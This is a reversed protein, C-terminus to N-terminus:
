PEPRRGWRAWHDGWYEPHESQSARVRERFEEMGLQGEPMRAEPLPHDRVLAALAALKRRYEEELLAFAPHKAAAALARGRKGSFRQVRGELASANDGNEEILGPLAAEVAEMERRLERLPEALGERSALVDMESLAEPIDTELQRRLGATELRMSELRRRYAGAPDLMEEPDLDLCYFSWLKRRNWFAEPDRALSAAEETYDTPRDPALQAAVLLGTTRALQEDLLSDSFPGAIGPSLREIAARSALHRLEHAMNCAVAEVALERDALSLFKRNFSYVALDLNAEGRHGVIGEVGKRRIIRSDSYDDARILLTTGSRRYEDVLERLVARGEPAEQMRALADCIFSEARAAQEDPLSIGGLEKDLLQGLLGRYSWRGFRVIGQLEPWPVPGGVIGEAEAPSLPRLFDEPHSLGQTQAESEIRQLTERIRGENLLRESAPSRSALLSALALLLRM